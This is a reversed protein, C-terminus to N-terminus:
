EFITVIEKDCGEPSYRWEDIHGGQQSYVIEEAMSPEDTVDVIVLKIKMKEPIISKIYVAATQGVSVNDCWEALGALNPTLEVFVGYPEVSRVTGAVTQGASFLGANEEWTGLLEKHTLTVRCIEPQISKVVCKIRQGCFFRESPHSIRSVSICDVPLLAAMGCGIDCFVGFSEIHTVVATIVDGAELKSIYNECCERQASSRSLVIRDGWRTPETGVVKFCVNKGVRTIVAIDKVEDGSPSYVAESRPIIGKFAGAEVHLNHESDCLFVRGELIAGTQMAEKLGEIDSTYRANQETGTLSGEPLYRNTM